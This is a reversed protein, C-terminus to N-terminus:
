LSFVDGICEGYDFDVGFRVAWMDALLEPRSEYFLFAYKM